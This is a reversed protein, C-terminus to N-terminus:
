RIQIAGRRMTTLCIRLHKLRIYHYNIKHTSNVPSLSAWITPLVNNKPTDTLTDRSTIVIQTLLGGAFIMMWDVSPRFLVFPPPLTFESEAKASVNM